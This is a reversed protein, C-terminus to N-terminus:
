FDTDDDSAYESGKISYEDTAWAGMDILSCRESCFPRWENESSFVTQSKCVPCLIKM